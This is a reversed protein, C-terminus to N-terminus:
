AQAPSINLDQTVENLLNKAEARNGTLKTVAILPQIRDELVVRFRAMLAPLNIMKGLTKDDAKELLFMRKVHDSFGRDIDEKCASTTIIKPTMGKEALKSLAEGQVYKQIAAYAFEKGAAKIQWADKGSSIGDPTISELYKKTQEAVKDIMHTNKEPFYLGDGKNETRGELTFHAEKNLVSKLSEIFNPIENKSFTQGQVDDWMEKGHGLGELFYASDKSLTLGIFADPFEDNLKMIALSRQHEGNGKNTMEQYNTYVWANPRDFGKEGKSESRRQNDIAQIAARFEPSVEAGITPSPTRVDIAEGKKGGVLLHETYLKGANNELNGRPDYDGFAFGIKQSQFAGFFQKFHKRVYSISSHSSFLGKKEVAEKRVSSLQEHLSENEHGKVLEQGLSDYADLLDVDTYLALNVDHLFRVTNNEENTKLAEYAPSKFAERLHNLIEANASRKDEPNSQIIKDIQGAQLVFDFVQNKTVSTNEGLHELVQKQSLNPDVGKFKSLAGFVTQRETDKARNVSDSLPEISVNAKLQSESPEVKLSGFTNNAVSNVSSGSVKGVNASTSAQLFAHSRTRQINSDFSSM